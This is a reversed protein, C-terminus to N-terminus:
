PVVEKVTFRGAPRWGATIVGAGYELDVDVDYHKSALFPKAFEHIAMAIEQAGEAELRLPAPYSRGIRGFEIEYAAM